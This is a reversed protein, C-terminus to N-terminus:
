IYRGDREFVATESTRCGFSLSLSQSKVRFIGDIGIEPHNIAIIDGVSVNPDFRRSYSITRAPGQLEKLKRLTYASISENTGLSVSSEEQWIERGRRVTSLPSEPDDDRAVATLDGSIVRLINPCSYWDYEDTVSLQITDNRNADFMSVVSKAAPEVHIVGRGDIRMRWNIVDLIRQVMTLNTEGDEAIIAEELKPPSSVPSVKVPAPGRKLLREVVQPATVETPVYFGRELIIDDVPKLVSFCEVKYKERRGNIERSPASTLGTFLPEHTIGGQDADLWIRIWAEGGEPLETMDLDASEMLEDASREITGGTIEMRTTDRWSKQDVITIYYAATFGEAWNM